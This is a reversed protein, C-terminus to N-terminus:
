LRYFINATVYGEQALGKAMATYSSPDGKYMGGGHIFVVAPLEESVGAPRYLDLTLARDGYQAYVLDEHAEINEIGAPDVRTSKLPGAGATAAAKKQPPVEAGYLRLAKVVMVGTSRLGTLGVEEVRSLDVEAAETDAFIQSKIVDYRRWRLEGFLIESQWEGTANQVQLGGGRRESVYWVEGPLKVLVELLGKSEDGISVGLRAGAGSLDWLRGSRKLSVAWPGSAELRGEAAELKRGHPGHGTPVLGRTSVGVGSLRGSLTNPAQAWSEEFLLVAEGGRASGGALWGVVVLMWLVGSWQLGM